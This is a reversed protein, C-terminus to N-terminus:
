PTNQWAGIRSIDYQTPPLAYGDKLSSYTSNEYELLIDKYTDYYARLNLESKDLKNDFYLYFNNIKQDKIRKYRYSASDIGTPAIGYDAESTSVKFAIENNESILYGVKVMASKSLKDSNVREDTPQVTIMLNLDDLYKM